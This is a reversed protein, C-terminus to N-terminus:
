SPGVQGLAYALIHERDFQCHFFEQVLRGARLVLIRDALGLLEEIESSILLIATGAATLRRMIQYIEERAGVDIGRTPEDLILLQPERLLWKAFVTKQQNGGSLHHVPRQRSGSLRLAEAIQAAARGAKGSRLWGARSFQPWVAVLINDDVSAGLLLGESRRDETVFAAAQEKCRAPTPHELMRGNLMISGADLPDLGFILRALETRGAGMMGALGVIEGRHVRLNVDEVAGRRTVGRLELAVDNQPAGSQAPFVQDVERGVMQRIM